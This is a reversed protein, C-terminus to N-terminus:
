FNDDQRDNSTILYNTPIYENRIKMVTTNKGNVVDAPAPIHTDSSPVFLVHWAAQKFCGHSV